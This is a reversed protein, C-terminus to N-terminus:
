LSYGKQFLTGNPWVDRGDQKRFAMKMERFSPENMKFWTFATGIQELTHADSGTILQFKDMIGTKILFAENVGSTVELADVLLGSPIFGLQNFLGFAQRNVHAPIFIGGLGLVTHAVDEISQNLGTWLLRKEEGQIEENRNVWVQHGSKVPNNPIDPLWKDLSRFLM